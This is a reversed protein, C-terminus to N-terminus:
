RQRKEGKKEEIARQLAEQRPSYGKLGFAIAQEVADLSGALDGDEELAISLHKFSTFSLRITEGAKLRQRAISILRPALQMDDRCAGVFVEQCRPNVHRRCYAWEVLESLVDHKALPDRAEALRADFEALRADIAKPSTDSGDDELEVWSNKIDSADEDAEGSPVSGPELFDALRYKGSPPLPVGAERLASKAAQYVKEYFAAHEKAGEETRFVDLEPLPAEHGCVCRLKVVPKPKFKVPFISRCLRCYIHLHQTRGIEYEQVFGQDSAGM